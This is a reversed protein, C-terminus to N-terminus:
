NLDSYYCYIVDLNFVTTQSYSPVPFLSCPVPFLSCFGIFGFMQLLDITQCLLHKIGKNM